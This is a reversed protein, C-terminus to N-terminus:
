PCSPMSLVAKAFLAENEVDSIECMESLGVCEPVSMNQTLAIYYIM